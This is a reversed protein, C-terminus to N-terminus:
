SAYGHEHGLLGEYSTFWLECDPWPCEWMRKKILARSELKSTQCDGWCHSGKRYTPEFNECDPCYAVLKPKVGISSEYPLTTLLRM